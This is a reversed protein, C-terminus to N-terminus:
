VSAQTLPETYDTATLTSVCLAESLLSNKSGYFLYITVGILLWSSVRLWTGLGLNIVLYVNILICLIPFFPVFPCMFGGTEGFTHRGEDQEILSLVVLGYLFPLVGLIGMPWRLWSPLVDLSASLTMLFVGICVAAISLAAAKRRKQDETKENEEVILPEKLDGDVKLSEALDEKGEVLSEPTYLMSEFTETEQLSPPVPVEEPPVYRLILISIAVITFALLTGVSVQCLFACM